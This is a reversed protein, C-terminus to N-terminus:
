LVIMHDVLKCVPRKRKEPETRVRNLGPECFQPGRRVGFRVMPGTRGHARVQVPGRDPEAPNLNSGLKVMGTIISTKRPKRIGKERM